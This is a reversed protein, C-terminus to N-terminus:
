IDGHKLKLNKQGLNQPMDKTNLKVAGCSNIKKEILDDSLDPSLFFNDTYLKHGYGEV